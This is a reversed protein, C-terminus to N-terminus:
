ASEAPDLPLSVHVRWGADPGPRATMTGGAASVRERMGALGMGTAPTAGPRSSPVPAPWAGDDSIVLDLEAPRWTFTVSAGTVGRAHQRTNTLAEQVARYLTLQTTGPVPRPRGRVRLQVPLGTGRVQELLEDLQGLGPQPQAIGAAPADQRLVGLLRRMEALAGRGTLAVQDMAEAAEVPQTVATAAAGAALPIMVSLHHSVIDHMERAIRTREAIQILQAQQDREVELRRARDELAALYARRSRVSTGLLYAAAVLGTLFILSGVVGDGTPAFRLSALIVGTELVAVAAVARARTEHAAVTYLAVLLAADAPLALRYAWQVSALVALVAFVAAPHRRRLAVPLVLAQDLVWVAPGYGRHERWVAHVTALDLVLALGLDALAVRWTWAQRRVRRREPTSRATLNWLAGRVAARVAVPRRRTAGAPAPAPVGPEV